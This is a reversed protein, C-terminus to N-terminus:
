GGQKGKSKFGPYWIIVEVKGKLNWGEHKGASRPKKEEGLM